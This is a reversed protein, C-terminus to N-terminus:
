LQFIDQLEPYVSVILTQLKKRAAAVKRVAAVERRTDASRNDDDACWSLSRINCLQKLLELRAVPHPKTGIDSLNFEGPVPLVRIKKAKVLDQVWLTKLELHRIKGVGQRALVGRAASSDLLLDFQIGRFGLFKLCEVLLLGHSVTSVGNYFEAEGSSQAHIAQGAVTSLLVAGACELVSCGVSKRTVKNGAWDTDSYGKVREPVGERPIWVGEDVAGLMYRVARCLRKMSAETPQQLDTCLIRQAFQVDAMDHSPYLTTCTASRYLGAKDGALPFLCDDPDPMLDKTIPTKAPKALELGLQKAAKQIYKTNPQILMGEAYRRRVRGLFEYQSGVEHIEAKKVPVKSSLYTIFKQAEDRTACGHVDDMHLEASLELEGSHFLQPTAKFRELSPYSTMVSAMHEVWQTAAVRRGPLLNLMRWTVHIDLGQQARAELWEPPPACYVLETEPLSNYAARIDVIFTVLDRKVATFDILRATDKTSGPAFLDDRKGKKNYDRACWRSKLIGDRVAEVWTGTLSLGAPDKESVPTVEYMGELVEAMHVHRTTGIQENTFSSVDPDEDDEILEPDGDFDYEIEEDVTPGLTIAAVRQYKEPQEDVHQRWANRDAEMWARRAPSLPQSDGSGGDGPDPPTAIGGMADDVETSPRQPEMVIAPEGDRNQEVVLGDLGDGNNARETPVEEIVPLPESLSPLPAVAAPNANAPPQEVGLPLALPARPKKGRQRILKPVRPKSDWPLGDAAIVEEKSWKADDALRRVTTTGRAGIPSILIHENSFESRGVWIGKHWLSDAALPRRGDRQEGTDSTAERFMMAEGFAALESRYQTDTLLEFSTRGGAHPQFRMVLFAAYQAMFSWIPMNPYLKMGLKAETAFRVTKMQEKISRVAREGAGLSQPSRTPVDQLRTNHARKAQLKEWIPALQADSSRIVIDKYGYHSLWKALYAVVFNQGNRDVEAEGTKVPMSTSCIASNGTDVFVLTTAYVQDHEVVEDKEVYTGDSKMRIIDAEFLPAGPDREGAPVKKHPATTGRGMVCWECWPAPPLHTLDHVEREAPSPQPVDPLPISIPQMQGERRQDLQKALEEQVFKERRQAAEDIILRKWMQQKTGYAGLKRRKLEQQMRTVSSGPGFGAPWLRPDRVDVDRPYWPEAPAVPPQPAVAPEMEAQEEPFEWAVEAQLPAVLAASGDELEGPVRLGAVKAKLYFSRRRM